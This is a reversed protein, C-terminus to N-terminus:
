MGTCYVTQFSSAPSIHLQKVEFRSCNQYITISISKMELVTPNLVDLKHERCSFSISEQGQELLKRNSQLIKWHKNKGLLYSCM